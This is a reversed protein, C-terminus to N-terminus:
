TDWLLIFVVEGIYNKRTGWSSNPTEEWPKEKSSRRGSRIM